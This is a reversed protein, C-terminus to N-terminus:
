SFLAQERGAGAEETRGDAGLSEGGEATNGYCGAYVEVASTGCASSDIVAPPGTEEMLRRVARPFSEREGKQLWLSYCEPIGSITM